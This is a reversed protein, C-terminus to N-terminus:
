ANGGSMRQIVEVAAAVAEANPKPWRFSGPLRQFFEEVEKGGVPGEAVDNEEDEEDENPPIPHDTM